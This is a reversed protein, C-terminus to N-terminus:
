LGSQYLSSIQELAKCAWIRDPLSLLRRAVPDAAREDKLNALADIVAGRVFVDEDNLAHLLSPVTERTGWIGLAEAASKRTFLDRDTLLPEIARAIEEPRGDPELQRLREVACHRVNRDASKLDQIFLAIEDPNVLKRGDLEPAPPKQTHPSNLARDPEQGELLKYTVLIPVRRSTNRTTESLDETFDEYDPQIHVSYVYQEGAKWGYRLEDAFSLRVLFLFAVLTLCTRRNRCV